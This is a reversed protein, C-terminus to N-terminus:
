GSRRCPRRRPAAVVRGPEVSVEAEPAVVRVVRDVHRKRTASRSPASRPFTFTSRCRRSLASASMAARIGLRRRSAARRCPCPTELLAVLEDDRSARREQNRAADEAILPHSVPAARASGGPPRAEVGKGKPDHWRSSRRCARGRRPSRAVRRGERADREIDQEARDAVLRDDLLALDHDPRHDGIVAVISWRNMSPNWPAMRALFTRSISRRGTAGRRAARGQPRRLVGRSGLPFRGSPAQGCPWRIRYSACKGAASLSNRFVVPFM